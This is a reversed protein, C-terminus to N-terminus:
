AICLCHHYGMDSRPSVPDADSVTKITRNSSLVNYGNSSIARAPLLAVQKGKVFVALEEPAVVMSLWKHLDEGEVNEKEELQVGLGELVDLNARVVSLAVDLASQLLNIVERQVLDVLKGQM